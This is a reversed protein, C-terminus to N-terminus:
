RDGPARVRPWIVLFGTKELVNADLGVLLYDIATHAAVCRFPDHIYGVPEEYFSAERGEAIGVDSVRNLDSFRTDMMVKRRLVGKDNCDQLTVPESHLLAM